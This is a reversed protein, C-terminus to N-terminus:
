IWGKEIESKEAIMKGLMYQSEPRGGLMQLVIKLINLKYKKENM